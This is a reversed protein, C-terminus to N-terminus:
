LEKVAVNVGPYMKVKVIGRGIYTDNVPKSTSSSARSKDLIQSSYASSTPGSESRGRLFSREKIMSEKEQQLEWDWFVQCMQKYKIVEQAKCPATTRWKVFKYFFYAKEFARRTAEKAEDKM